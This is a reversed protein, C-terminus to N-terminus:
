SMSSIAMRLRTIGNQVDAHCDRMKKGSGCLCLYHGRPRVRLLAMIEDRDRQALIHKLTLQADGNDRVEQRGLWEILGLSGHMLEGWLWVRTEAHHSQAFFYPILLEEVFIDLEFGKCFTRELDMAAALCLAGDQEYQHMDLLSKGLRKATEALKGGIEHAKPYPEGEPWTIRVKYTDSIYLHDAPSTDLVLKDPPNVLYQGNARLMKFTLSGEIVRPKTEQLTPYSVALWSLDDRTWM